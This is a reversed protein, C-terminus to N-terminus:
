ESCVICLKAFKHATSRNALLLCNLVLPSLSHELLSVLELQQINQPGRYRALQVSCVWVLVDLALGQAVSSQTGELSAVKALQEVFPLSELM